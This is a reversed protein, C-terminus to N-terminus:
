QLPAIQASVLSVRTLALFRWWLPARVEGIGDFHKGFVNQDTM